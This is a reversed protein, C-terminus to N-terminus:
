YFFVKNRHRHPVPELTHHHTGQGGNSADFYTMSPSSL